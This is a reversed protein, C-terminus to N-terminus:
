RLNEWLNYTDGRDIYDQLVNIFDAKYERFNDRMTSKKQKKLWSQLKAKSEVLQLQVNQMSSAEPLDRASLHHIVLEIENEYEMLKRMDDEDYCELANLKQKIKIADERKM